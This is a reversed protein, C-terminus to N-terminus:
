TSMFVTQISTRVIPLIRGMRASRPIFSMTHCIYCWIVSVEADFDELAHSSFVYDLSLDAFLSLDAIDGVMSAGEQSIQIDIGISAAWLRQPGCGLDLGKGRTYPVTLWRIKATEHGQSTELKWTM